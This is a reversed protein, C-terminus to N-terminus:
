DFGPDLPLPAFVRPAPGAYVAKGLESARSQLAMRQAAILHRDGVRAELDALDHEDGLLNSLAVLDDVLPKLLEPRYAMLLRVHYWLYKVQKRWEHFHDGTPESLVRTLAGEGESFVRELGARLQDTDVAQPWSPLRNSIEGLRAIVARIRGAENAQAWARELEQELEGLLDTAGIMAATSLRVTAERLPALLRGADRCARNERKFVDRHLGPRLLRLVARIKKFAKRSEHVATDRDDEGSLLGGARDLQEKVVRRVGGMLREAPTLSYSM